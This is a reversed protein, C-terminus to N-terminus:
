QKETEIAEAQIGLRFSNVDYAYAFYVSLSLGESSRLSERQLEGERIEARFIRYM